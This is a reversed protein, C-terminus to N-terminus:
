AKILTKHVKYTTPSASTGTALVRVNGATIGVDIDFIASNTVITGYETSSATISNHVILLETIQRDTGRTAQIILKASGYTAAPFSAIQSESTTSLSTTEVGLDDVFEKTVRTDIASNARTDTYYLNTGETINTTTSAIPKWESTTSDYRLLDGNALGTFDIDHLDALACGNTARVFITGVQHHSSIVFAVPLKMGSTPETTVVQGASSVSIYLIDGEDYSSTDIDRVKGFHTVKGDGDAPIDTTTFGLFYDANAVNTGDMPAITIRGSAGLTGTAMVPTGNSITSGTNNRVHYHVEQGVQLTAGNQILDLTEEDTNWSLTGQTGTGGTFQLTDTTTEGTVIIGDPTVEAVTSGANQLLLNGTGVEDIISNSGNHYIELDSSDGFYIKQNDALQLDNQFTSNSKYAAITVVDGPQAVTILTVATGNTATYDTGNDILVGNVFVQVKSLETGSGLDYSLTNGNSDVGEFLTQATVVNYEYIKFSSSLSGGSVNSIATDLDALVEALTSSSSNDYSSTDIVLNNETIEKLAVISETGDNKKIYVIGDNTNIAIEGLSLDATTPIRGAVASRKLTITQAM